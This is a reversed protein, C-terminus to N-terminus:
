LHSSLILNLGKLTLNIDIATFEQCHRSIFGINGGTGIIKANKGLKLKLKKITGDTLSAFGFIVGSLMSDRTNKGILDKPAKDLKIRPLLATKEWLASLSTEMGPVILGGLYEKKRSIVDFTIATGFDVVIAPSGFLKVAAFGNVLRDQGVQKPFQYRNKIPVLLNKGLILPKATKLRKLALELKQTAEPVVSAVIVQEIKFRTFYLKLFSYYEKANTALAGKKLLKNNKFLGLTLNTNGIDIALNM